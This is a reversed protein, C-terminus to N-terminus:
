VLHLTTRPIHGAEHNGEYIEVDVRDVVNTALLNQGVVILRGEYGSLKTSQRPAPRLDPPLGRGRLSNLRLPRRGRSWGRRGTRGRRRSRLRSRLRDVRLQAPAVVVVGGHRGVQPVHAGDVGVESSKVGDSLAHLTHGGAGGRGGKDGEENELVASQVRGGCFSKLTAVIDPKALCSFKFTFECSNDSELSHVLQDKAMQIGVTLIRNTQSYLLM